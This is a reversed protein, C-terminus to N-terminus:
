RDLAKQLIKVIIDTLGYRTLIETLLEALFYLETSKAAKINNYQGGWLGTHGTPM